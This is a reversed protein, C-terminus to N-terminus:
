LLLVRHFKHCCNWSQSLLRWMQLLQMLHPVITSWYSTQVDGGSRIQYKCESSVPGTQELVTGPIWKPGDRLNRVLVNQRVEFEHFKSHADHCRKQDAQKSLVRSWLSPKLLDLRTQLPRRLFLEAPIVGTTSSAMNRYVLLFRSLKVSLSGGDKQSAKLSHKFTQIFREAEGNSAPYYPATKLHKIGNAKMCMEFETSTFQPGNDSVLQEPLGYRAFIERLVKLTKPAKTTTMPVVELWKSYADVVVMFMSGLFPGAFDVHVRKWPGDPWSWPHLLTTSPNNRVSRCSECDRVLQEVHKDIGPWWVHVCALSKMKVIGPHSTHLEALVAKRCSEPVIVRMGWMLCGVEITLESRRNFYPKLDADVAEPWGKQTYLLVKSLVPDTQTAVRLQAADVPLIEIQSLNFVSAASLRMM